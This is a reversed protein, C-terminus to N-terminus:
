GFALALLLFATAAVQQTAGLTDGTQGGIAARALAAFAFGAALSGSIAVLATWIGLMPLTLVLAIAGGIALAAASTRGDPRGLGASLGDPRAPPMEHWVRAMTARSAAEAAVLVFVATAQGIAALGALAGARLLVSFVLALAGYTGIRSDRMIALRKEVSHGGGLGDASDALGDEHLAGTALVMALVALLGALGPGLNLSLAVLLVVGGALGVAAGVVPFTWAAGSIDPREPGAGGFRTLFALGVRLDVLPDRRPPPARPDIMLDRDAM